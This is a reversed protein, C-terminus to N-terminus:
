GAQTIKVGASAGIRNAGAAIMAEATARDKVGGSAKVGVMPGVTRRMLKVDDVTAGGGGFGTSTKVYDACAEKALACAAVKEEDTLLATEIIVKTCARGATAQVVGAIDRMVLDYDGGKLAGINIVMDVETAGQEVALRTEFAKTKSANAGLPFGIVTCTEVASGALLGACLPVWVPQVCVSAFRYQVAEECLRRVDAETADPKLLTHDIAQALDPPLSRAKEGCALRCAGNDLMARLHFEEPEVVQCGCTVASTCAGGADGLRAVVRETIVDVLRDDPPM